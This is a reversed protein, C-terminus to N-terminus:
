FTKSTKRCRRLKRNRGGVKWGSKENQILRGGLLRAHWTAEVELVAKANRDAILQIMMMKEGHITDESTSFPSPTSNARPMGPRAAKGVAPLYDYSDNLIEFARDFGNYPKSADFAAAPNAASSGAM